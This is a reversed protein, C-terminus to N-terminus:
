IKKFLGLELAKDIDLKYKTYSTNSSRDDKYFFFGDSSVELKSRYGNNDDVEISCYKSNGGQLNISIKGDQSAILNGGSTGRGTCNISLRNESSDFDLGVPAASTADGISGSINIDDSAISLNNTKSSFTLKNDTNETLTPIKAASYRKDSLAKWVKLGEIDLYKTM